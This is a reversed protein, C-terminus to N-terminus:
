QFRTVKELALALLSAGAYSPHIGCPTSAGVLQTLLGATCTSDGSSHAAAARLRVSGTRLRSM